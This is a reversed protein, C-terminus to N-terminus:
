SKGVSEERDERYHQLNSVGNVALNGLVAVVGEEPFAQLLLLSCPEYIARLRELRTVTLSHHPGRFLARHFVVNAFCCRLARARMWSMKEASTFLFNARGLVLAHFAHLIM